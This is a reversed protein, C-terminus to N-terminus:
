LLAAQKKIKDRVIETWIIRKTDDDWKIQSRIKMSTDHSGYYPLLESFPNRKEDCFIVKVTNNILECLLYSTMSVATSEIIVTAIENIYIKKTEQSRIVLYGMQYDLKANRSIIITRWSM